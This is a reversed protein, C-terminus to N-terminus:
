FHYCLITITFMRQLVLQIRQHPLRMAVTEQLGDRPISRIVTQTKLLTVGGSDVILYILDVSVTTAIRRSRRRYMFTDYWLARPIKTCATTCQELSSRWLRHSLAFKPVGGVLFGKVSRWWIHYVYNRGPDRYGFLIQVRDTWPNRRGMLAFCICGINAHKSRKKTEM